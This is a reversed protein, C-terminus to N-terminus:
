KKAGGLSDIIEKFEMTLPSLTCMNSSIWVIRSIIETGKREMLKILARETTEGQAFAERYDEKPYKGSVYLLSGSTAILEHYYWYWKRLYHSYDYPKTMLHFYHTTEHSNTIARDIEQREANKKEIQIIPKSGMALYGGHCKNDILEVPAQRMPQHFNLRCLMELTEAQMREAEEKLMEPTIEWTPKYKKGFLGLQMM